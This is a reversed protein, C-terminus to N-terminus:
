KNKSKGKSKRHILRSTKDVAKKMLEYLRGSKVHVARAIWPDPRIGPHVVKMAFVGKGTEEGGIAGPIEWHLARANKPKIVYSKGAPGFLGTGEHLYRGIRSTCEIGGTIVTGSITVPISRTAATVGGTQDKYRHNEKAYNTVEDCFIAMAASCNAILQSQFNMLAPNITNSVM